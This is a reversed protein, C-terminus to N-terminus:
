AMGTGVTLVIGAGSTEAFISRIVMTGLDEIGIVSKKLKTGTTKTFKLAAGVRGVHAGVLVGVGGIQACSVLVGVGVLVGMAVAIDVGVLVGVGVGVEVVSDICGVDVGLGVHVGVIVGATGNVIGCSAIQSQESSVM